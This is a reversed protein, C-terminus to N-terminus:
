QFIEKWSTVKEKNIWRFIQNILLMHFIFLFHLPFMYFPWALSKPLFPNNVDPAETVYMYNAIDTYPNEVYTNLLFNVGIMATSILVDFGYARVWDWKIFQMNFHKIMVFPLSILTSHVVIFHTVQLPSDGATLLPTMFSHFGGTMGMYATLVFLMRSRIFCNFAMLYFNVSCFHLPLNRHFSFTYDPDFYQIVPMYLQMAIMAIGLGNLLRSRSEESTRDFLRNLFIGFLIAGFMMIWYRPDDYEIAVEITHADAPSM